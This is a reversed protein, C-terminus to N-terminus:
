APPAPREFFTLLNGDRDVLPFDRDGWWQDRVCARPRLLGKAQYEAFLADVGEVRVRCAGTGPLFSEAGSVVPREAFDARGRWGEDNLHTLHLEAADRRVIAFGGERHRAAFGLQDAYFAVARELDRVALVPITEGLRPVSVGDPPASRRGM